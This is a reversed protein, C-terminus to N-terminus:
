GNSCNNQKIISEIIELAKKSNNKEEFRDRMLLVNTKYTTYNRKLHNLKRTITVSSDRSINGKLGLRHYVVRAANGPQDWQSSLPYILAPVGRFICETISNMGGHNLMIDCYKLLDAQPLNRFAYLNDPVPFLQGIDYDEGVSLVFLDNPNKRAVQMLRFFFRNVKKLYLRNQSGLSCYIVYGNNQNKFKSIRNLLITYRPMKIEVERDIDVLPGIYWTGENVPHPFDFAAPSLMLRPLGEIGVGFGRNLNTRSQLDIGNQSAIKCTISYTDTKRTKLQLLNLRYRNQLTKILWLWNSYIRNVLRHTPVFTTTFPPVNKFKCPDPKTQLCIVSVGCIEYFVAKLMNQEDLLVLEPALQKIFEKFEQFDQRMKRMIKGKVSKNINKFIMWSGAEGKKLLVPAIDFGISCSALGYKALEAKLGQNLYIVEYGASQLMQVLKLTSNFHGMAPLLDILIRAM